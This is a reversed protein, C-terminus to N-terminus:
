LDDRVLILGVQRVAECYAFGNHHPPQGGIVLVVPLDGDPGAIDACHLLNGLHILGGGFPHLEVEVAVHGSHVADGAQILDNVLGIFPTVPGQGDGVM